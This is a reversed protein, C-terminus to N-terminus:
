AAVVIVWLPCDDVAFPIEDLSEVRTKIHNQRVEGQGPEVTEARHTEHPL